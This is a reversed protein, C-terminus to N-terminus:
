IQFKNRISPIFNLTQENIRYRTLFNLKSCDKLLEKVYEVVQLLVRPSLKELLLRAEENSNINITKVSNNNKISVNQVFYLYEEDTKELLKQVSPFGLGIKINDQEVTSCCSASKGFAEKIEDRISDIKLELSMPQEDKTISVKCSDGLSNIRTELLLLFFDIISINKFYDAPKNTMNGFIDCVTEIFILEDPEDGFSCKLLEKYDKVKLENCLVKTNTLEAVFKM